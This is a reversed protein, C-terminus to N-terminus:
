NGTPTFFESKWHADLLQPSATGYNPRIHVPQHPRAGKPQGTVTVTAAPIHINPNVTTTHVTVSGAAAGTASLALVALASSMVCLTSIRTM